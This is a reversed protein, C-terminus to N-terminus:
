APATPVGSGASKVEGGQRPPELAPHHGIEGEGEDGVEVEAGLRAEGALQALEGGVGSVQGAGEDVAHVALDPRIQHDVEAVVDLVLAGLGVAGAVGLALADEAAGGGLEDVHGAVWASVM